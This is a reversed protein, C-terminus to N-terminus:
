FEHLPNLGFANSWLDKDSRVDTLHPVLIM